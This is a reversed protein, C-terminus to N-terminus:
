AAEGAFREDTAVNGSATAKTTMPRESFADIRTDFQTTKAVTAVGGSSTGKMVAELAAVSIVETTTRDSNLATRAVTAITPLWNSRLPCFSRPALSKVEPRANCATAIAWRSDAADDEVNAM